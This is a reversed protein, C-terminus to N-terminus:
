IEEDVLYFSWLNACSPGIGVHRGKLSITTHYSEFFFNRWLLLSLRGALNNDNCHQHHSTRLNGETWLLTMHRTDRIKDTNADVLSSKSKEWKGPRQPAKFFKSQTVTNIIFRILYKNLVERQQQQRVSVSHAMVPYLSQCPTLLTRGFYIFVRAVKPNVSRLWDSM